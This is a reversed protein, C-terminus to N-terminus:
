DGDPTKQRPHIYGKFDDFGKWAPEPPTYGPRPAYTSPDTAGPTVIYRPCNPFIARVKVRVLLQAGAFRQMLPDDRSVRAEGNVRLRRPKEGMDIFLLGVAPNVLVNGLSKFMGNGDYDPFALEDTGVIRVFGPTGGKFSCDPRGEADATALFFFMAGEIFARDQDTFAFRTLKEELRDAIRRSDFDDQLRRNGDHFMVSAPM